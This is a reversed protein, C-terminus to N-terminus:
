AAEVMASRTSWLDRQSADYAWPDPQRINVVGPMSPQNAGSSLGVLREERQTVVGGTQHEIVVKLEGQVAKPASDAVGGPKQEPAMRAAEQDANRLVRPIYEQTEKFTYAEGTKENGIGANYAALAKTEDGKYHKLLAALYQQGFRANSEPDALKSVADAYTKALPDIGFGPKMATSPLIQMLGRTGAGSVAGSKGGSEARVLGMYLNKFRDPSMWESLGFRDFASRDFLREVNQRNEEWTPSSGGRSASGDVGRTQTADPQYLPMPLDYKKRAQVVQTPVVDPKTKEAVDTNTAVSKTGQDTFAIAPIEGTRGFDNVWRHELMRKGPKGIPAPIDYGFGKDREDKPNTVTVPETADIGLKEKLRVAVLADFQARQEDSTLTARAKALGGQLKEYQVSASLAGEGLDDPLVSRVLDYIERKPTGWSSFAKDEKSSEGQSSVNFIRLLSSFGSEIAEIGKAVRDVIATKIELLPNGVSNEIASRILALESQMKSEPTEQRGTEAIGRMLVKRYEDIGAKSAEEIDAAFRKAKDDSMSAALDDAMRKLDKPSDTNVAEILSKAAGDAMEGFPVGAEALAQGIKEFGRPDRVSGEGLYRKAVDTPIKLATSIDGWRLDGADNDGPYAPVSEALGKRLIDAKYLGKGKLEPIVEGIDAFMDLEMLRKYTGLNGQAYPGFIRMMMAQGGLGGGPNAVGENIRNMAGIGAGSMDGSRWQATREALFNEIGSTQVKGTREATMQLYSTLESLVLPMNGQMGGQYIAGGLKTVFENEDSKTRGTAGLFKLQAMMSTVQLPDEGYARALGIAGRTGEAIEQQDTTRSIRTYADALRVAEHNLVALGDGLQPFRALVSDLGDGFANLHRLLTDAERRTAEADDEARSAVGMVSSLGAMGLAFKASGWLWGGMGGGSGDQSEYRSFGAQPGQLGTGTMLAQQYQNISQALAAGSQNPFVRGFDLQHPSVGQTLQDEIAARRFPNAQLYSALNSQIRTGYEGASGSVRSFDIRRFDHYTGVLRSLQENAESFDRPNIIRVGRFANTVGSLQQLQRMFSAVSGQAQGLNASVSFDVSSM